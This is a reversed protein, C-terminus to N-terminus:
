LSRYIFRPSVLLAFRARSREDGKYAIQLKLTRRSDGAPLYSRRANERASALIHLEIPYYRLVSATM